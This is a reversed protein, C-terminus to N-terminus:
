LYIRPQNTFALSDWTLFLVDALFAIYEVHGSTLLQKTARRHFGSSVSKEKRESLQNM